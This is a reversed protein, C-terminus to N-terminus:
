DLIAALCLFFDEVAEYDFTKLMGALGSQTFFGRRYNAIGPQRFNIDFGLDILAAHSKSLFRNFKSFVITKM